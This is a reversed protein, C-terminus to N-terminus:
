IASLWDPRKLQHHGGPIDSTYPRSQFVRGDVMTIFYYSYYKFTGHEYREMLMKANVEFLSLYDTDGKKERDLDTFYMNTITKNSDSWDVWHEQPLPQLKGISRIAEFTSWEIQKWNPEDSKM